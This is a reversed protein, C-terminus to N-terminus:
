NCAAFQRIIGLVIRLLGTQKFNDQSSQNKFWLDRFAGYRTHCHQFRPWIGLLAAIYERRPLVEFTSTRTQALTKGEESIGCQDPAAGQQGSAFPFTSPAATHAEGSVRERLTTGAVASVPARLSRERIHPRAPAAHGSPPLSTGASRVSMSKRTATMAVAPQTVDVGLAGLDIESTGAPRTAHAGWAYHQRRAGGDRDRAESWLRSTRENRDHM